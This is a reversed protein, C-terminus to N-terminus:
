IEGTGDCDPCDTIGTCFFGPPVTLPNVTGRGNCTPCKFDEGDDEFPDDDDGM